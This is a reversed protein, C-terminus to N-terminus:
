ERHLRVLMDMTYIGGRTSAVEILYWSAVAGPLVILNTADIMAVDDTVATLYVDLDRWQTLSAAGAGARM